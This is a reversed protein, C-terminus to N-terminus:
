RSYINATFDGDEIKIKLSGTAGDAKNRIREYRLINNITFLLSKTALLIQMSNPTGTFPWVTSIHFTPM